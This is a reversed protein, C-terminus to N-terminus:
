MNKLRQTVAGRTYKRFIDAFRPRFYASFFRGEGCGSAPKKRVDRKGCHERIETM